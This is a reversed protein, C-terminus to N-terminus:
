RKRAVIKGQMAARFFIKVVWKGFAFRSGLNTNGSVGSAEDCITVARRTTGPRSPDLLQQPSAVKRSDVRLLRNRRAFFTPAL